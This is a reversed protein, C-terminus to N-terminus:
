TVDISGSGIRVARGGVQVRTIADPTAATIRMHIRSPRQM